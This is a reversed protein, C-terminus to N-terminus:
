SWENAIANTVYVSSDTSHDTEFLHHVLDAIKAAPSYPIRIKELNRRMAHLQEPHALLDEIVPILDDQKKVYKAVNAKVLIKANETEQGPLSQILVMPVQSAIAESISLGGAKTVFVDALQLLEDMEKIFPLPHLNECGTQRIGQLRNYLKQNKGCIVVFQTQSNSEALKKCVKSLDTVGFAGSSLLVIPMENNFGWKTLLDERPIKQYFGSMIPIGTITISSPHIGARVLENHLSETAVFYQDVAKYLWNSHNVYDTIVCWLTFNLNGREKVAALMGTIGNFTSIVLDPQHRELYRELKKRGLRSIPQFWKTDAPLDKTKYYLFGYISKAWHFTQLYLNRMIWDSVPFAMGLFDECVIESNPLKTSIAEELAEAARKHGAGYNGYLIMVKIPKDSRM